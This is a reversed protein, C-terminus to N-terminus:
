THQLSRAGLDVLKTLSNLCADFSFEVCRSALMRFGQVRADFLKHVAFQWKLFGWFIALTVAPISIVHINHNPALHVYAPLLSSEKCGQM